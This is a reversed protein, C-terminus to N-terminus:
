FSVRRIGLRFGGIGLSLSFSKFRRRGGCFKVGRHGCRFGSHTRAHCGRSYRPMPMYGYGYGYGYGGGYGGGYGYGGSFGHSGGYYIPGSGCGGGCRQPMPMPMPMPRYIPQQAISVRVSVSTGMPPVMPQGFFGYSPSSFGTLVMLASASLWKTLKEM